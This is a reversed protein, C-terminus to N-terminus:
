KGAKGSQILAVREYALSDKKTELYRQYCYLARKFDKMEFFIHGLNYYLEPWEENSSL